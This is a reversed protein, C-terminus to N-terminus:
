TQEFLPNAPSFCFLNRWGMFWIWSFWLRPFDSILLICSSTDSPFWASFLKLHIPLAHLCKLFFSEFLLQPHGWFSDFLALFGCFYFLFQAQNIGLCVFCQLFITCIQSMNQAGKMAWYVRFIPRIHEEHAFILEWKKVFAKRTSPPKM